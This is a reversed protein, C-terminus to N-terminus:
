CSWPVGERSNQAPSSTDGGGAPEVAQWARSGEDRSGAVSDAPNQMSMVYVCWLRIKLRKMVIVNEGSSSSSRSGSGIDISESKM